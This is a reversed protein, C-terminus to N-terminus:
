KRLVLNLIFTIVISIIICLTVPFFFVFNEKKIVLSGPMKQLLSFKTFLIVLIGAIILFVGLSFFPSEIKM